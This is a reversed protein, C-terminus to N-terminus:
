LLLTSLKLIAKLFPHFACSCWGGGVTTELWSWSTEFIFYIWPQQRHTFALFSVIRLLLDARKESVACLSVFLLSQDICNYLYRQDDLLAVNNAKTQWISVNIDHGCDIGLGTVKGAQAETIIKSLFAYIRNRYIWFLRWCTSEAVNLPIVGEYIHM